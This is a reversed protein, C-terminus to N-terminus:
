QSRFEWNYDRCKIRKTPPDEGLPQVYCSRESYRGRSYSFASTYGELATHSFVEIEPYAQNADLHLSFGDGQTQFLLTYERVSTKIPKAFLWFRANHAGNFCPSASKVVLFELTTTLLVSGLFHKEPSGKALGPVDEEAQCQELRKKDEKAFSGIVSSPVKVPRDIEMDSGFITQQKSDQSFGDDGFLMLLFPICMTRVASVIVADKM